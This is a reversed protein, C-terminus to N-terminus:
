YVRESLLGRRLKFSHFLYKLHSSLCTGKFSQYPFTDGESRWPIHASHTETVQWLEAALLQLQDHGFRWIMKGEHEVNEPQIPRILFGKTEVLAAQKSISQTYLPKTELQNKQSLTAWTSDWHWEFENPQKLALIQGKVIISQEALHSLSVGQAHRGDGMVVTTIRIVAAAYGNSIRLFTIAPNGVILDHGFLSDQLKSKSDRFPDKSLSAVRRLRDTSKQGGDRGFLAKTVSQLHVWHGEIDVWGKKGELGHGDVPDSQPVTQPSVATAHSSNASTPTGTQTSLRTNNSNSATASTNKNPQISGERLGIYEGSPRMLDVKKGPQAKVIEDFDFYLGARSLATIAEQRGQMWSAKLDVNEVLVDGVWSQPNTHDIGASGTASLRYPPRNLEPFRAYIQNVHQAVASREALGKLDVNCDHNVTRVTGFHNELRDDGCQLLYFPLTPDLEKTKAVCFYANKISSQIDYYLQGSLFDSRNFWYLAFLLHGCKSLLTLQKSLSLSINTFPEIYASIFDGLLVFSREEPAHTIEDLQSAQHIVRLSLLKHAKPVNQQDSQDFLPELASLTIGPLKSLHRQILSSDIHTHAVLISGAKRLASALRKELHKYDGDNTEQHPGCCLNLLPLAGLHTHLPSEPTLTTAYCYRHIARRRRGEGDTALSWLEGHKAAGHPSSNWADIVAKLVDFHAQDSESKCTGSLMVVRASYDTEGFPALAVVTAEKAIHCAGSRLSDQISQLCQLSSQSVKSLPLSSSHERCFGVLSDLSASYQPHEELAIEDTLLSFGRKRLTNPAASATPMSSFPLSFMSEVNRLVEDSTPSYISPILEPSHSNRYTTSLSPLGLGKALAYLLRPGGLHLTLAAM